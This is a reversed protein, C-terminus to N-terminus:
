KEQIETSKIDNNPKSYKKEDLGFLLKIAIEVASAILWILWTIAWARTTFSVGLYIVTVILWYIKLISELVINESSSHKEDDKKDGNESLVKAVNKPACMVTYIILGTACAIMALMLIVGLVAGNNPMFCSFGILVVVSLIYLMVAIAINKARKQRYAEVQQEFETMIFGGYFFTNNKGRNIKVSKQVKKTVM